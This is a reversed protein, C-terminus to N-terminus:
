SPSPEETPVPEYRLFTLEFYPAIECRGEPGYQGEQWVAECFYSGDGKDCEDMGDDKIDQEITGIMDGTVPGNAACVFPADGDLYFVEILAPRGRITGKDVLVKDTQPSLATKADRITQRDPTEGFEMVDASECTEILSRLAEDKVALATKMAELESRAERIKADVGFVEHMDRQCDLANLLDLIAETKM